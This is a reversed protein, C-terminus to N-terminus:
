VDLAVSFGNSFVAAGEVLVRSKDVLCSNPALAVEDSLLAPTVNHIVVSVNESTVSLLNLLSVISLHM